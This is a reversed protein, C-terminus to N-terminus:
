YISLQYNAGMTQNGKHICRKNPFGESFFSCFKHCGAFKLQWRIIVYINIVFCDFYLCGGVKLYNHCNHFNIKWCKWHFLLYVPVKYEIFNLNMLSLCVFCFHESSVHLFIFTFTIVTSKAWHKEIFFPNKM